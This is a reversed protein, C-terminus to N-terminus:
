HIVDRRTLQYILTEPPCLLFKSMLNVLWITGIKGFQIPDALWIWSVNMGWEDPDRGDIEVM